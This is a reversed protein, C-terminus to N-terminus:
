RWLHPMPCSNPFSQNEYKILFKVIQHETLDIEQHELYEIFKCIEQFIM